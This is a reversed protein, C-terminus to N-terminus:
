YNAEESHWGTPTLHGQLLPTRHFQDQNSAYPIAFSFGNHRTFSSDFTDHPRSTVTIQQLSPISTNFTMSHDRKEHTKLHQNLNDSRAFTRQCGLYTCEFPREATHIRQHRKLHEPRKFRRQCDTHECIYQKENEELTTPHILDAEFTPEYHTFAKNPTPSTAPPYSAHFQHETSLEHFKTEPQSETLTSRQLPSSHELAKKTHTRFHAHFNDSRSFRKGCGPHHCLHPREGTHVFMHRKLHEHRKFSWGCDPHSCVHKNQKAPQRRTSVARETVSLSRKQLHMPWYSHYQTDPAASCTSMRRDFQDPYPPYSFNLHAMDMSYKRKFSPNTLTGSPSLAPTLPPSLVQDSDTGQTCPTSYLLPRSSSLEDFCYTTM